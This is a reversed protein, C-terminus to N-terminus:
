IMILPMMCCMGRREGEAHCWLYHDIGDDFMMRQVYCAVRMWAVSRTDNERM